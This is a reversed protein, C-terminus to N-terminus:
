QGATRIGAEELTAMDALLELSAGIVPLALAAGSGEGLRLGLDFLPSLGLARLVLGHGPEPSLHSAIMTDVAAPAMRAAVLAAAATIFGDLVVPVRNAAAGLAVGILVGIEFGGLSSLVGLPDRPDPTNVALARRVVAIKRALGEDDLGTGRGCVAEPATPLLVACLASAATTNAIGMEGLAVLGVGDAALEGALGIGATVADLAQETTMAPGHALNATGAGIRLSRIQPHVLPELVGADVVVLRAGAARALVNAAARGSAFVELMRRTVEQPYASVGEAAVGHDGVALVLAPALRGPAATGRIGAVRSALRELEGLSGPPKTKRDLAGQAARSALADASAVQALTAGLLSHREGEVASKM